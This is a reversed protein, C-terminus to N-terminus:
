PFFSGSHATERGGDRGARARDRRRPIAATGITAPTPNIQAIAATHTICGAESLATKTGAGEADCGGAVGTGLVALTLTAGWTVRRATGRDRRSWVGGPGDRGGWGAVGAADVM